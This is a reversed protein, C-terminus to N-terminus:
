IESFKVGNIKQDSYFHLKHSSLLYIVSLVIQNLSFKRLQSRLALSIELFYFIFYRQFETVAHLYESLMTNLSVFNLDLGIFELIRIESDNYDEPKIVQKILM